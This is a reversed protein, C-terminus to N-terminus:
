ILSVLFVSFCVALFYVALGMKISEQKKLSIFVSMIVGGVGLVYGAFVLLVVPLFAFSVTFLLVSAVALVLQALYFNVTELFIM